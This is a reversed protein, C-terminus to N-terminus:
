FQGVIAFGNGTPVVRTRKGPGRPLSGTLKPILLGGAIGIAAGVAVDSFYHKDGAVRLYATATALGLGAGWIFPEFPTKRAHAVMGASVALSFALSSHGSFFSLNDESTRKEDTFHIGPRERGVALKVAGTLLQTYVVAELVPIADDAFRLWPDDDSSGALALLGFAAVPAAVYAALDSLKRAQHPDDWLFRDRVARDLRNTGCWRCADPVLAEKFVTESALYLTAGLALVALRDRRRKHTTDASAAPTAALTAVLLAAGIVRPHARSAVPSRM